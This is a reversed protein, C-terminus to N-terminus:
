PWAFLGNWHHDVPGENEKDPVRGSSRDQEQAAHHIRVRCPVVFFLSGGGDPFSLWLPLALAPEYSGCSRQSTGPLGFCPREGPLCGLDVELRFLAEHAVGSSSAAGEQFPEAAFRLAVAVGCALAVRFGDSCFLIEQVFAPM